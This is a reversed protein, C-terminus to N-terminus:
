WFHCRQISFRIRRKACGIRPETCRWLRTDALFVLFGEVFPIEPHVGAKWGVIRRSLLVMRRLISNQVWCLWTSLGCLDLPSHWCSIVQFDLTKGLIQPLVGIKWRVVPILFHVMRHLISNQVWCLCYSPWCLNTPSHWCTIGHFDQKQALIQLLVGTKWRVVPISFNVM